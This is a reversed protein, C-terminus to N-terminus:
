FRVGLTAIEHPRLTFKVTRGAIHPAEVGKLPRELLDLRQARRAAAPLTVTVATTRGHTEALRLIIQGDGEAQKVGSLVVNAPTVALFSAEEPRTAHAKGLALSPPETALVPKNFVDAEDWVNTQWTGAHPLLAYRIRHLGQDPYIDPDYSSRLLTLRLEGKDLSHGYKSQNLLAVGAKPTSVDVWQQAPVEQGNTPRRAVDFPVHCDFRPEKFALPFVVRLMPSDVKPSGQEFWHAELEFDVRPYQRYVFTRQIFRSRGWTKVVEVAARVPGQEVIKVSEVQVVDEVQPTPGISWATMGHPKELYVRLRNLRQGKAVLESRTRKDYLGAIEGNTMDIVVRFFDTEFTGNKESVPKAAPSPQAGDVYYTRYGCPPLDEARFQVRWRWGPPFLKMWVIQAAVTHGNPDRLLVSPVQAGGASRVNHGGYYDGWSAGVATAPPDHSFVEAEVLTTLTRPHPNFVVIPQGKAPKVKVEDALARLAQDRVDEARSAAWKYDAAADANAEHIASGCLIDHFENFTVIEWSRRLAEAPYTHGQVYRLAALLEASYLAAECRRNGEKVRAISTYCGEFVYQMEGVHTPRGAMDKASQRFFDEARTFKVAPLGATRDMEHATEIDRRTPGGGHDGVGVVHLLRSKDPVLNAFDKCLDNNVVGNYGWNAYCLVQSGDPSEWWFTGRHPPCRHCYFFDCGALRLIQPLQSVHGFNDPLWGTVAQKGFRDLFYNQGLLFTRALAEGGSMNTDGETFMGGGLEWRGQHVYKKIKEFLPPDIHEIVKYTSPQSQMFTFDPFEEMFAIVQRFSDHCTQMTEPWTWLWNMDIHAHGILHATRTGLDPLTAHLKEDLRGLAAAAGQQDGGGLHKLGDRAVTADLQGLTVGWIQLLTQLRQAAARATPGAQGSAAADMLVQTTLTKPLAASQRQDNHGIEVHAKASGLIAAVAALPATLTLEVREGAGVSALVGGIAASTQDGVLRVGVQRAPQRGMNVIAVEVVCGRPKVVIRAESFVPDAKKGLQGPWIDPQPNRVAFQLKVPAAIQCHFGWAGEYQSIKLLLRNWGRELKVAVADQGPLVGRQVENKWVPRGNLVAAVGDDSGLLLTVNAAKPSHIYTFAYAACMEQVAWGAQRLNVGETGHTAVQWARGDLVQGPGPALLREPLYKPELIKERQANAFSGIVLWQPATQPALNM